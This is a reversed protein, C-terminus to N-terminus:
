VTISIFFLFIGSFIKILPPEPIIPICNDLSSETIKIKGLFTNDKKILYVYDNDAPPLFVGNGGFISFRAESLDKISYSAFRRTKFVDNIEGYPVKGELTQISLPFGIGANSTGNLSLLHNPNIKIGFLSTNELNIKIFNNIKDKIEFPTMKGGLVHLNNKYIFSKHGLRNKPIIGDQINMHVWKRLTLNFSWLDNLYTNPPLMDDGGFIIMNDNYIVASHGYRKSPKYGIIDDIESWTNSSIDYEWIDNFLTQINRESQGGFIIIKKNYSVMSFLGRPPPPNNVSIDTFPVELKMQLSILSNLYTSGKVDRGGFSYITNDVMVMEHGYRSKDGGLSTKSVDFTTLNLEYVEKYTTNSYHPIGGYIYM